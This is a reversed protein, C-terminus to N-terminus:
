SPSQRLPVGDGAQPPCAATSEETDPAASRRVVARPSIHAPFRAEVGGRPEGEGVAGNARPPVRGFRHLAPAAPAERRSARRGLSATGLGAALVAALVAAALDPWRDGAAPLGGLRVRLAAGRAIPGGSWHMYRHGSATVPAAARLGDATVDIHPGSVLLEVRAAGAPATWALVARGGAPREQYTYTFQAGGPALPRTDTIRGGEVHPDRWGDLPEVNLAEAPLPVVLPDSRTRVITRDGTNQVQEVTTVRLAGPVVDVVAFLLTGRLAAVTAGTDYVALSVERAPGGPPLVIREAAEYPAGQYETSVLFVRLGGAPLGAFVFAGDPGTRTQRESSSGREVIQLRVLQGAVPHVPPTRDVVRGRIVGAAPGSAGAAAAGSSPPVGPAAGAPAVGAALPAALAACMAAIATSGALRARM